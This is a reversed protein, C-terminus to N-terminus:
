ATGMQAAKSRSYSKDKKKRDKTAGTLDRISHADRDKLRRSNAARLKELEEDKLLRLTDLEPEPHSSLDVSGKEIVALTLSEVGAKQFPFYKAFDAAWRDYSV